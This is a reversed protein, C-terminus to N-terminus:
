MHRDVDMVMGTQPAFKIASGADEKGVDGEGEGEAKVVRGEEDRVLGTAKFEVGAKPKRKRLRLITNISPEDTSIAASAILEDLSQPPPSASAPEDDEPARQRYLKRKKSPRFLIPANSPDIEM